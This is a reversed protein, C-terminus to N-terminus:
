SPHHHTPVITLTVEVEVPTGDRLEALYGTIHQGTAQRLAVWRVAAEELGDRTEFQAELVGIRGARRLVRRRVHAVQARTMM